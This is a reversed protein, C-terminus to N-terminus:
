GLVFIHKLYVQLGPYGELLASTCQFDLVGAARRKVNISGNSNTANDFFGAITGWLNNAPPLDYYVVVNGCPSFRADSDALEFCLLLTTGASLPVLETSTYTIVGTSENLEVDLGPLKKVGSSGTTDVICPKSCCSRGSSQSITTPLM